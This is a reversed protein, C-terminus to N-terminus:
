KKWRLVYLARDREFKFYLHRGHLFIDGCESNKLWEITTEVDTLLQQKSYTAVMNSLKDRHDNLSQERKFNTADSRIGTSIKQNKNEM